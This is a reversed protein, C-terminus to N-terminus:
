DLQFEPTQVIHRGSAAFGDDSGVAYTVRFRVNSLSEPLLSRRLVVFRTLSGSPVLAEPSVSQCAMSLRRDAVWVHGDRVDVTYCNPLWVTSSGRNVIRIQVTYDIQAVTQVVSAEVTAGAGGCSIVM